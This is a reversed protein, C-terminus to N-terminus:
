IHLHILNNNSDVDASKIKVANETFTVGSAQGRFGM